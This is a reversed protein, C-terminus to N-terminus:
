RQAILRIERRVLNGQTDTVEVVLTYSGQNFFVEGLNWYFGAEQVDKLPIQFQADVWQGNEVDLRDLVYTFIERGNLFAQISFVSRLSQDPNRDFAQIQIEVDTVPIRILNRVPLWQDSNELKIRFEQILPTADRPASPIVNMPNLVLGESQDLYFVAVRRNAPQAPVEVGDVVTAIPIIQQGLEQGQAWSGNPLLSEVQLQGLISRLGEPHSFAVYNGLGTPLNQHLTQDQDFQFLAVGQHTNAPNGSAGEVIVGPLLSGGVQDGFGHLINVEAFPWEFSWSLSALFLMPILKLMKRMTAGTKRKKRM